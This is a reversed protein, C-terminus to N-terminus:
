LLIEILGIFVHNSWLFGCRSILTPLLICVWYLVFTLCFSVKQRELYDQLLSEHRFNLRAEEDDPQSKHSNVAVRKM